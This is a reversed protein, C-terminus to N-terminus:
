KRRYQVISSAENIGVLRDGTISQIRIIRIPDDMYKRNIDRALKNIADQSIGVTKQVGITRVESVVYVLVDGSVKWTGRGQIQMNEILYNDKRVTLYAMLMFGGPNISLDQYRTNASGGIDTKREVIWEGYLQAPDFAVLKAVTILLLLIVKTM